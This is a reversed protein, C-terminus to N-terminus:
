AGGSVLRTDRVAGVGASVTQNTQFGAVSGVVHRNLVPPRVVVIETKTVLQFHRAVNYGVRETTCRASERSDHIDNVSSVLSLFMICCAVYLRSRVFHCTSMYRTFINYLM